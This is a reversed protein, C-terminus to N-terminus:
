KKRKRRPSTGVHISIHACAYVAWEFTPGKSISSRENVQFSMERWSERLHQSSLAPFILHIYWTGMKVAIPTLRESTIWLLRFSPSTNWTVSSRSYLEYELCIRFFLCRLYRMMGILGRIWCTKWVIGVLSTTLTRKDLSDIQIADVRPWRDLDVAKM